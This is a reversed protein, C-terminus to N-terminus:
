EELGIDSAVALNFHESETYRKLTHAAWLIEKNM